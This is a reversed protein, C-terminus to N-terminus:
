TKVKAGGWVVPLLVYLLVPLTSVILHVEARRAGWPLAMVAVWPCAKHPLRPLGECLQAQKHVLARRLATTGAARVHKLGCSFHTGCDADPWWPLCLGEELPGWHWRGSLWPCTSVAQLLIHQVVQILLWPRTPEPHCTEGPVPAGCIQELLQILDQCVGTQSIWSNNGGSTVYRTSLPWQNRVLVWWTLGPMRACMRHMKSTLLHVLSM